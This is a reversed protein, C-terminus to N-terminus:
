SIRSIYVEGVVDQPTVSTHVADMNFGPGNGFVDGPMWPEALDNMAVDVASVVILLQGSNLGSRGAFVTQIIKSGRFASAYTLILSSDGDVIPTPGVAVNVVYVGPTRFNLIDPANRNIVYDEGIAVGEATIDGTVVEQLTDGLTSYLTAYDTVLPIQSDTVLDQISGRWNLIPQETFGGGVPVELRDGGYRRLILVGDVIAAGTVRDDSTQDIDSM